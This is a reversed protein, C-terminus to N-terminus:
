PAEGRLLYLTLAAAAHLVPADEEPSRIEMIARHFMGLASQEDRPEPLNRKIDYSLQARWKLDPPAPKAERGVMRLAMKSYQLLRYLMSPTLVHGDRSGGSPSLSRMLRHLEMARNFQRWTMTLTGITIRDRGSEKSQELAESALHALHRVPTTPRAFVIGASFSLNANACTMRAFWKRLDNLFRVLDYWPGVLFLDDGGAFVTYVHRYHSELRSTVFGRFFLDLNRATAALRGFSARAGFGYSLLLGLRDVDAKLAGLM